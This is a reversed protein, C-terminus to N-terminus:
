ESFQEGIGGVNAVTPAADRAFAPIIEALDVLEIRDRVALWYDRVTVFRSGYLERFRRELPADKLVSSLARRNELFRRPVAEGTVYLMRRKPTQTSALGVVDAFLKNQRISEPGGQWEIFTFEAIRRDTELDHARGTNGAGLSLSEVVEGPELIHPLAILIGLAHVLVNIQGAARKVILAAGLLEADVDETALHEAAAARTTGTLIRELGGIWRTLGIASLRDIRLLARAIEDAAPRPAVPEASPM